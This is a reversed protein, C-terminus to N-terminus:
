DKFQIIKLQKLTEVVECVPLGVVNSYSGQIKKVLFAGIGQIGYAGAKDFPEGTEVYWLIEEQSLSKFYVKTEVVQKHVVQTSQNFLCFGTFVSHESNSLSSLMEVAQLKSAPKEFMQHNTAVITDAGLIWHDPFKEAVDRSKLCALQEVYDSPIESSFADEDIRSPIVKISLGIQELLQKRRPSQSALIIQKRNTSNM